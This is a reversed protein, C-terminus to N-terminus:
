PEVCPLAWEKRATRATCWRGSLRMFVRKKREAQGDLGPQKM